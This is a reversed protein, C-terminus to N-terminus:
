SLKHSKIIIIIFENLTAPSDEGGIRKLRSKAHLWADHHNVHNLLHFKFFVRERKIFSANILFHTIGVPLMLFCVKFRQIMRFKRWQNWWNTNFLHNPLFDERRLLRLCNSCFVFSYKPLISPDTWNSLSITHSFFIFSSWCYNQPAILSAM